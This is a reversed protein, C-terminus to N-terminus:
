VQSGRGLQVVATPSREIAVIRLSHEDAIAGTETRTVLGRDVLAQIDRGESGALTVYLPVGDPADCADMRCVEEAWLSRMTAKEAREAAMAQDVPRHM